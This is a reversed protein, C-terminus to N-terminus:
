CWRGSPRTTTWGRISQASPGGTRVSPLSYAPAAAKAYLLDPISIEQRKVRALWGLVGTNPNYTAAYYNNAIQSDAGADPQYGRASFLRFVAIYSTHIVLSRPFPAFYPPPYRDVLYGDAESSAEICAATQQASSIGQMALPNIAVLVLDDPTCYQSV